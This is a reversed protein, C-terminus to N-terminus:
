FGTYNHTLSIHICIYTYVLTLHCVSSFLRLKQIFCPCEMVSGAAYLLAKMLLRSRLMENAGVTVSLILPHAIGAM